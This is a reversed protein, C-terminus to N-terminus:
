CTEEPRISGQRVVFVVASRNKRCYRVGSNGRRSCPKGWPSLSSSLSCLWCESVKGKQKCLGFELNYCHRCLKTFRLLAQILKITKHVHRDFISHVRYTVSINLCDKILITYVTSFFGKCESHFKFVGNVSGSHMFAQIDSIPPFPPPNFVYSDCRM